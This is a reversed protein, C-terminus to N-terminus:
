VQLVGIRYQQVKELRASACFGHLPQARYDRVSTPYTFFNNEPMIYPVLYHQLIIITHTPSGPSHNAAKGYLIFFDEDFGRRVFVAIISATM